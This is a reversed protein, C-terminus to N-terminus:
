SPAASMLSVALCFTEIILCWAMMHEKLRAFYRWCREVTPDAICTVQLVTGKDVAIFSLPSEYRTAVM